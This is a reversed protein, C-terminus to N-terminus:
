IMACTTIMTTTLHQCYSITTDSKQGLMFIPRGDLVEEFPLHSTHLPIKLLYPWCSPGFIVKKCFNRYLRWGDLDNNSM